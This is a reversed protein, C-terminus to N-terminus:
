GRGRLFVLVHAGMSVNSGNDNHIVINVADILDNEVIDGFGTSQIALETLVSVSRTLSHDAIVSAGLFHGSRELALTITTSTNALRTARVVNFSEIWFVNGRAFILTM